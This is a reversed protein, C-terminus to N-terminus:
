KLFRRVEEAFEEAHDRVAFLHAGIRPGNVNNWEAPVDALIQEFGTETLRSLCDTFTTLDIEQSKLQRYFV